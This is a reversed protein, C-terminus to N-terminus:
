QKLYYVPANRAGERELLGCDVLRQLWRRATTPRLFLESEMVRRSISRHSQLYTSVWEVMEAEDYTKSRTTGKMREFRVSTKLAKLMSAEPRFRIYDLTVHSTKIEAADDPRHLGVQPSFYGVGPLYFRHGGALEALMLHAIASFVAEMDGPTLTCSRSIREELERRTMADTLLPQVYAREEGSGSANSIAHIDYKISM